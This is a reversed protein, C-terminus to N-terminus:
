DKTLVYLIIWGGQQDSGMYHTSFLKWGNNVYESLQNDVDQVADHTSGDSFPAITRVMQKVRPLNELAVSEVKEKDEFVTKTM